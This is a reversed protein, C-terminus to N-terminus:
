KPESEDSAAVDNLGYFFAVVRLRRQFYAVLDRHHVAGREVPAADQEVSYRPEDDHQSHLSTLSRAAAVGGGGGGGGGGRGGSGGGGGDGGDGDGGGGGGGGDGSGRDNDSVAM